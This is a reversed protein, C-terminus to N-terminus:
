SVRFWDLTLAYVTEDRADRIVPEALTLSDLLIKRIKTAAEESLSFIASYHMDIENPSDLSQMARMRWNIHHKAVLPSDASLHIRTPSAIVQDGRRKALKRDVLFDMAIKITREPLRLREAASRLTQHPETRLLMHLATYVWTSYYTQRDSESLSEKAQIRNRIETRKKVLHAAEARYYNELEVTGARGVQVLLMFYSRESDDHGLFESTKLAHELAFQTRGHLVQSVFGSQCNLVKALRGRAGRQEGEVPLAQTLYLRYDDFSFVDPRM